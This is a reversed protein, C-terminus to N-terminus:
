LAMGLNQRLAVTYLRRQSEGAEVRGLAAEHVGAVEVDRGICCNWCDTSGSSELVPTLSEHASTTSGSGEAAVLPSAICVLLQDPPAFLPTPRASSKISVVLWLADRLLSTEATSFATSM